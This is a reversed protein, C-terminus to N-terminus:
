GAYPKLAAVLEGLVPHLFVLRPPIATGWRQQLRACLLVAKLSSGGQEFFSAQWDLDARELVEALVARLQTETEIGNEAAAEPLPSFGTCLQELTAQQQALIRRLLQVYDQALAAVTAAEFRDTSYTFTAVLGHEREGIDLMLDFLTSHTAGEKIPRIRLNGFDASTLIREQHLDFMLQLQRASPPMAQQLQEFPLDQHTQAALMDDRLQALLSDFRTNVDLASRLALTNVFFGILGELDQHHRNAIPVGVRIDRQGSHGALLLKFAALLTMFLTVGQRQCFAQLDQSLAADMQFGYQAGHHSPLAPRARLGPLQLPVVEGHLHQLWFDLQAQLRAPSLERRQWAAFDAYQLAPEALPSPQGSRFATYLATLERTFVRMSWGDTVIHHLTLWLVHAQGTLRILGARLLPGRALDFPQLAQTDLQSRLETEREADSLGSLDLLPLPFPRPPALRQVPQGNELAFTTRLSAHRRLLEALSRELAPQDLDGDLRVAEAVHYASTGPHLQEFLWLREQAFSLPLTGEHALPSIPPLQSAAAAPLAQEAFAALTPHQFLARVAVEVGMVSRLRSILRTATLSHGGLEFFHDDLGVQELGLVEAWLGALQAERANRPTRYPRQSAREPAPLANRDLKGNPTLPLAPLMVYAAPLMHEPLTEALHAHLGQAGPCANKAVVYAVLEADGAANSRAIVAAENVAPHALLRAEIEGLEIRFGRIKVQHDVRGLFELEGEANVRGIDGSRYLRSGAPGFPDPLFREATLAPRGLYGQTIGAGGLYIEGAVGPAVEELRENLVRLQMNAIARGIPLVGQENGRSRYLTCWVTGETPGYENYLAAQPCVEAHRAAVTGQCAEGAVIAARLGALREGPQALVQAYLSPLMLCHSIQQSAILRALAAADQVETDQPLCLTGGQSLTWFLGAVSSDFALGSVLLFSAVAEPYGQWRASTSHVANRHSVMVGKPRGTSGSTFILYALQEPHSLPVPAHDPFGTAASDDLWLTRYQGAPLRERLATVSLLLPAHTQELMDALREGPYAPDLPLYAGGAKLIALIATIAEISRGLFLGVPQGAQLGAGRLRHALRNARDELERYSLRTDGHILAIAEPRAQVQAEFLQHLLAPTELRTDTRSLEQLWDSQAQSLGSAERLPRQSAATAQECLALFQDLILGAARADLKAADYRLAFHLEGNQELVELALAFPETETDIGLLPWASTVARRYRFGFAPAEGPWSEQWAEAEALLPNLEQALTALSKGEDVALLVPLAKAYAGLATQTAENRGEHRWALLLRPLGLHRQLLATWCLGFVSAPSVKLGAVASHLHDLATASLSQNVRAPQYSSATAPRQFPHALNLLEPAAQRQWFARGAEGDPGTTLEHQWEAFDAYQVAEEELPQGQCLSALEALLRELSAADANAAPLALLLHSGSTQRLLAAALPPQDAQQVTAALDAQLRKADDEQGTAEVVQWGFELTEAIVQVPLQLGPVATLRTRLIEHRDLLQSLAAHLREATVTTPLEVQLQAVAAANQRWHRVQQLSPRFGEIPHSM